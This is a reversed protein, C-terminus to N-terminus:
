LVQKTEENHIVSGSRQREIDIKAQKRSFNQRVETRLLRYLRHFIRHVDKTMHDLWVQNQYSADRQYTSAQEKRVQVAELYEPHQYLSAQEQLNLNWPRRKDISRSIRQIYYMLVTNPKHSNMINQM